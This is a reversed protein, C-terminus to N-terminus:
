GQAKAKPPSLPINLAKAQELAFALAAPKEKIRGQDVEAQVKEQITRIHRGTIGVATLEDGKLFYAKRVQVVRRPPIIEPWITTKDRGYPNRVYAPHLIAQEGGEGVFDIFGRSELVKLHTEADEHGWAERIATITPATEGDRVYHTLFDLFVKQPDEILRAAELLHDVMYADLRNILWNVDVACLNALKFLHHVFIPYGGFREWKQRLRELDFPSVPEELRAALNVAIEEWMLEKESPSFGTNPSYKNAPPRFSFRVIKVNTKGETIWNDTPHHSSTALIRVRPNPANALKQFFWRNVQTIKNVDLLCIVLDHSVKQLCDIAYDAHDKTIQELKRLMNELAFEGNM